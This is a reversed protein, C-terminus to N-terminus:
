KEKMWLTDVTINRNISDLGANFIYYDKEVGLVNVVTVHSNFFSKQANSMTQSSHDFKLNLICYDKWNVKWFSTDSTRLNIEMQISGDRMIVFKEQSKSPYFYFTGKKIYDCNLTKSQALLLNPSLYLIILFNIFRM